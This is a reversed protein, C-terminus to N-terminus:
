RKQAIRKNTRLGPVWRLMKASDGQYEQLYGKNLGFRVAIRAAEYRKNESDGDVMDKEVLERVLADRPWEKEGDEMLIQIDDAVAWATPKKRVRGSELIPGATPLNSIERKSAELVEIARKHERIEAEIAAILNEHAM